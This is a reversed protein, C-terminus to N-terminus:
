STFTVISRPRATSIHRQSPLSLCSALRPMRPASGRCQARWSYRSAVAALGLSQCGDTVEVVSGRRVYWAM